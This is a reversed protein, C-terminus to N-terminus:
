KKIVSTVLNFRDSNLKLIYQGMPLASIDIIDSQNNLVGSLMLKGTVDLINYEMQGDYNVEINLFYKSPNPFIKVAFQTPLTAVGSITVTKCSSYVSCSADTIECQYTGTALVTYSISTAGSIALGTACDIWQYSANTANVTLVNGNRTVTTDIIYISLQITLALDCGLNNSITDSYTGSQAWVYRGSPSTYSNCASITRTELTTSCDYKLLTSSEPSDQTLSMYANGNQDVYHDFTTEFEKSYGTASGGVMNWSTGDFRHLETGAPNLYLNNNYTKLVGVRTFPHPANTWVGNEFVKMKGTFFDTADEYIMYLKNNMYAVQAVDSGSVVIADPGVPIWQNAQLKLVVAEGQFTSFSIHPIDNVFILNAYKNNIENTTSGLSLWSTGDYKQVEVHDIGQNFDYTNGIVYVTDNYVQMNFNSMNWPPTPTLYNWKKYPAIHWSGIGVIRGTSTTSIFENEWVDADNIDTTIGWTQYETLTPNTASLLTYHLESPNPSPINVGMFLTDGKVTLQNNDTSSGIPSGIQVWQATVANFSFIFSFLIINRLTSIM